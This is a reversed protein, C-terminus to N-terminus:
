QFTLCHWMRANRGHKPSYDTHLVYSTAQILYWYKAISIWNYWPPAKLKLVLISTNGLKGTCQNCNKHLIQRPKCCLLHHGDLTTTHQHHICTHANGATLHRSIVLVQHCEAASYTSTNNNWSITQRYDLIYICLLFLKFTAGVTINKSRYYNCKTVGLM